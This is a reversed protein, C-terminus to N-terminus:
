SELKRQIRTLAVPEVKLPKSQKIINNTNNKKRACFSCYKCLIDSVHGEFEGERRSTRGACERPRVGRTLLHRGFM